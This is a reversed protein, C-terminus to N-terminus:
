VAGAAPVGREAQMDAITAKLTSAEQAAAKLEAKLTRVKIDLDDRQCSLFEVGEAPTLARKEKDNWPVENRSTWSNAGYYTPIM